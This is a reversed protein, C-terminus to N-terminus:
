RSQRSCIPIRGHTQADRARRVRGAEAFLPNMHDRMVSEAADLLRWFIFMPLVSLDPRERAWQEIAIDARDM